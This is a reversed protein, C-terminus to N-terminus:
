FWRKRYVLGSSIQLREEHDLDVVRSNLRHSLIVSTSTQNLLTLIRRGLFTFINKHCTFTFLLQRLIEYSGLSVVTVTTGTFVGKEGDGSGVQYPRPCIRSQDRRPTFRCFIKYTIGLHVRFVLYIKLVVNKFKHVRLRSYRWHYGKDRCWPRSGQIYTCLHHGTNLESRRM